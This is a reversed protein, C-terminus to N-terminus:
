NSYFLAFGSSFTMFYINGLKRFPFIDPLNQKEYHSTNAERGPVRGARGAKGGRSDGTEM